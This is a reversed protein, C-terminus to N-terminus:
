EKFESLGGEMNAILTFTSNKYLYNYSPLILYKMRFIPYKAKDLQHVILHMEKKKGCLIDYALPWTNSEIDFYNIEDLSINCYKYFNGSLKIKKCNKLKKKTEFNVYINNSFKIEEKSFPAYASM